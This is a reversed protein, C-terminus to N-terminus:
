LQSGLADRELGGLRESLDAGERRNRLDNFLLTLAVMPVGGFLVLGLQQVAVNISNVIGLVWSPNRANESNGVMAGVAVIAGVITAIISPISQLMSVILSLVTLAGFVYFWHGRTLGASRRLAQVPGAREFLIAHLALTWRYGFYLPLGFPTALIVLWCLWPRRARPNGWWVLIGVLAVLGGLIGFLGLVFLPVSLLILGFGLLIGLLAFVFLMPTARLGRMYAALAPPRAGRMEGDTIVAVAAFSPILLLGTLLAVLIASSYVTGFTRFLESPDEAAATSAESLSVMAGTMWQTLVLLLITNPIAALAMPVLLPRWAAKYIRFTEDLVPGFGLPRQYRPLLPATEPVQAPADLTGTNARVWADDTTPRPPPTTERFDM